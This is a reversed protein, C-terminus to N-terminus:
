RRIIRSCPLAGSQATGDESARYKGSLLGSALPAWALIGVGHETGFPVFENEIARQALSYELQIAAIPEYGRFEAICQTRRRTGHPCTRCASM